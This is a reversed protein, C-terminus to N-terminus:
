ASQILGSSDPTNDVVSTSEAQDTQGNSKKRVGESYDDGIEDNNRKSLVDRVNNTQITNQNEHDGKDNEPIQTETDNIDFGTECYRM